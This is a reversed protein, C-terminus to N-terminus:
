STQNEQSKFGGLGVYNIYIPLYGFLGKYIKGANKDTQQLVLDGVTKLFVYKAISGTSSLIAAIAWAM